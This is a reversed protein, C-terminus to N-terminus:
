LRDEDEMHMLMQTNVKPFVRNLSRMFSPWNPAAKMLATVAALHEKLKPHGLDPTFWQHHKTQRGGSPLIPNKSRLEDLVGPAIREYVFDNTYRGIIPPRKVGHPGDWGKLRYIEEYFSYPFTKTWPQLEKVIFAELIKALAREEKVREYGTTEDVLAVIGVTSFGDLLIECREAMPEQRPQLAGARHAARIARCLASFHEASYGYATRGGKPHQFRIPSKLAMLLDGDIFPKLAKTSAFRPLKAGGNERGGRSTGLGAFVGRQSLVRTGDELVYCPLEIGNIMLPKDESGAIVKLTPRYNLVKDAIRDLEPPTTTM